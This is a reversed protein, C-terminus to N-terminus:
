KLKELSLQLKKENLGIYGAPVCLKQGETLIYKLFALVAPNTPIGNSVLYLDRAPPSPYKNDAVAKVFDDKTDYFYEEATITRDGNADIPCVFLGANPKRNQEDYAYGINNFGIALKDRQVAQALGPDGFVATGQLDEQKKGMWMAFTEAAGCADSRTYVHIPTKESTGLLQGWTTIKGTIWINYADQMTIGHQKIQAALPNETNVTVVVADKTVAFAVAGKELEPPYVERSVMGLDVVNALVDTMGKGAGGASLDIRVGPNAKQFNEAWEVALPYLAFAGSISIEGSLGGKNDKKAQNGGCSILAAAVCLIIAISFGHVVDRQYPIIFYNRKKFFKPTKFRTM